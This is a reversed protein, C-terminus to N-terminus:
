GKKEPGVDAPETQWSLIFLLGVGVCIATDALNFAPFSAIQGEADRRYVYFYLFDIVHRRSPLLRDILNGVIGGFILGLSIQGGLTHINFHHRSLFLVFLAVIAIAALLGNNGSFMSWAAGTNGWHVLKFFGKVITKEEAFGLYKLVFLKTLQDFFVVALALRLVTWTSKPKMCVIPRTNIGERHFHCILLM